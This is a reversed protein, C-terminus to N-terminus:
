SESAMQLDCEVTELSNELKRLRKKAEQIREKKWAREEKKLKSVDACMEVQQLLILLIKEIDEDLLGATCGTLNKQLYKQSCEYKSRGSYTHSMRHNCSGCIVKGVLPYRDYFYSRGFISGDKTIYVRRVTLGMNKAVEIPDVWIPELLAKKYHDRLFQEAVTDLNEKYIVPVM